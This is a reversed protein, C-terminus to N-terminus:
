RAGLNAVCNSIRKWYERIVYVRTPAYGESVISRLLTKRSSILPILNGDDIIYLQSPDKLPSVKGEYVLIYQEPVGCKSSLYEELDHKVLHESIESSPEDNGPLYEFILKPPIREIFQRSLYGIKENNSRMSDKLMSLLSVDDFLCWSLKDRLIEKPPDVLGEELMVKYIRQLLAEFGSVTKHYYVTKFLQFRSILLSELATESGRAFAMIWKARGRKVLRVSRIVRGVDIKGYAVGTHLADRLMYDIRDSDVESCVLPSLKDKRRLIEVVRDAFDGLKEKLFNEILFVTVEEHNVSLTHSFPMHGIDHLLAALRLAQLDAEDVIGANLAMLSAVHMTGISHSFRTHTAGPFVLDASGLQKIRRLRQFICDSIALLEIPTVDIFGHVEDYIEKEFTLPPVRRTM